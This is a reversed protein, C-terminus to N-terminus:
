TRRDFVIVQEFATGSADVGSLAATLVRGDASVEYSGRGLVVDGNRAETNLRHAGEWHCVMMVGPAQPSVPHEKGDPYFDLASSEENGGANVGSYKMAVATETVDFTM